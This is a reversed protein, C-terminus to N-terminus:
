SAELFLEDDNEEMFIDLAEEPTEIKQDSILEIIGERAIQVAEDVIDQQDEVIARGEISIGIEQTDEIIKVIRRIIEPDSLLKDITALTEPDLTTVVSETTLEELEDDKLDSNSEIYSEVVPM